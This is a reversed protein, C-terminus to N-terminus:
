RVGSTLRGRDGARIRDHLERLYPGPEAGYRQAMTARLRGYCGLAEARAGSLWLARMLQGWRYERASDAALMRLEPIVAAPETALRADMLLDDGAERHAALERRAVGVMGEGPLDALANGRWLALAERLRVAATAADGEGLARRGAALGARFLEADMRGPPLDLCYGPARYVIVSGDDDGVLRRLRMVYNRVLARATAPPEVPWLEEILVTVPVTRCRNVLLVALLHRQKTAAVPQWREGTRIEVPGLLRFHM